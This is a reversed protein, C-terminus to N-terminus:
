SAMPKLRAVARVLRLIAIRRLAEAKRKRHLRDVIQFWNALFAGHRSPQAARLLQVLGAMCCKQDRSLSAWWHDASDAGGDFSPEKGGWERRAWDPDQALGPPAYIEPPQPPNKHSTKQRV